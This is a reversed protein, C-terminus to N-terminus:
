DVMRDSGLIQVEQITKELLLREILHKVRLDTGYDRESRELDILITVKGEEPNGCIIQNFNLQLQNLDHLIITRVDIEQTELCTVSVYYHTTDTHRAININDVKRSASSLFVNILMLIISCIIGELQFGAGIIVGVAASCWLTAATNIGSVSYGDRIIVGGALFGIGSVVQAAIRTPSGDDVILASLTVFLCAGFCVLTTTKMGALKKQWQREIGIIMGAFIGFFSNIILEWAM